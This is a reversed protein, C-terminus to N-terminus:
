FKEAGKDLGRRYDVFFFSEGDRDSEGAAGVNELTGLGTDWLGSARVPDVPAVRLDPCRALAESTAMGPAVGSAEAAGNVEDVNRAGLGPPVAAPRESTGGPSGARHGFNSIRCRNM